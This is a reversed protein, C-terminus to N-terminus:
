LKDAFFMENLDKEMIVYDNPNGPTRHVPYVMFGLNYLERGFRAIIKNVDRNRLESSAEYADTLTGPYLGAIDEFDEISMDNLHIFHLVANLSHM